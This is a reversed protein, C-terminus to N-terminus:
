DGGDAGAERGVRHIRPFEGLPVGAQVQELMARAEKSLRRTDIGQCVPLYADLKRLGKFFQGEAGRSNGRQCHYCAVAMHIVAQLFLRHPGREPTWLEELVEHCEFFEQRNFLEIGRQLLPSM